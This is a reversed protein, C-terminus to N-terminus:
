LTKNSGYVELRISQEPIITGAAAEPTVTLLSPKQDGTTQSNKGNINWSYILEGLSSLPYFFPEALISVPGSLDSALATIARATDANFSRSLAYFKIKPNSPRFVFTKEKSLTKSSNELTVSIRDSFTYFPPTYAYINKGAGSAGALFSNNINWKYIFRSADFGPAKPLAMVSFPAGTTPLAKGKYWPPIYTGAWWYFSLDIVQITVSKAAETKIM